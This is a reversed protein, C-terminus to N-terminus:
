IEKSCSRFLWRNTRESSKLRKQAAEYELEILKMRAQHEAQLARREEQKLLFNQERFRREEEHLRREERKALIKENLLSINMDHEKSALSIMRKHYEPCCCSRIGSFKGAPTSTAGPKMKGPFFTSEPASNAKEAEREILRSANVFSLALPATLITRPELAHPPPAARETLSEAEEDSTPDGMLSCHQKVTLGLSGPSVVKLGNPPPPPPTKRQSGVIATVSIDGFTHIEAADSGEQPQNPIEPSSVHGDSSNENREESPPFIIPSEDERIICPSDFAEIM